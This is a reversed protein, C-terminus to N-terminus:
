KQKDFGEYSEIVYQPSDNLSIYVRGLYEGILGLMALISGGIISMLGITSAWGVTAMPNYIKNLLAYICVIFGIISIIFGIISGIRLPKISFATFGNLWLHILKNISYGSKGNLRERHDIDVNAIKATTRLVLGAVYTFPNHYKVIEDIVYRKAIFFSSLYLDKEKGLLHIAMLNNLSSGLRRFTSEKLSKYRAYVVDYGENLKNILRDVQSAPTQGDDDLSIVYQGTVHRYGALLAAHQGFNKPFSIAKVKKNKKALSFIVEKTNDTSNDNVLIIEFSSDINKMTEKIEDVVLGISNASNYCPIVFSYKTM